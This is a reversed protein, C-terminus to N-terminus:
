ISTLNSCGRLTSCIISKLGNSTYLSVYCVHISSWTNNSNYGLIFRMSKFFVLTVYGYMYSIVPDRIFFLTGFKKSRLPKVLSFHLLTKNWIYIQSFLRLLYMFCVKEQLILYQCQRPLFSSVVSTYADLVKTEPLFHNSTVEKILSNM